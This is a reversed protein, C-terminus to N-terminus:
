DAKVFKNNAELFDVAMRSALELKLSELNAPQKILEEVEAVERGYAAAISEIENKIDDESPEIKEAEVIAEIVLQTRVRREAGERFQGEMLERTQGTYQMYTDLDLGQYQLERAFDGIMGEIENTVMAEPMEFNANDTAAIVVLERKYSKYENARVEGLRDRIDAKLEELTEFESVDKALEDDIAPVSKRKIENVTVKFMVPAGALSEEHYNEPFSLEIEKEEGIKMGIMQEEFGPIFSNSGIELPYDEGKGGPFAIGDKFGEFNIVTNDGNEVLGDEIVDLQANREQYNVLEKEVDEETVMFDKAEKIELDKYQGLKVEPKVYVEATFTLNEGKAMDQIDFEPQAVPTIGAEEVAKDYAEPVILELADNFLSEVGFRQEFIVRPVKGKRFGPVNVDKVIKRFAQDLGADVEAASVEIELKVKNTEIKEVKVSM